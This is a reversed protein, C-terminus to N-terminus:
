SVAKEQALFECRHQGVEMMSTVRVSCMQCEWVTLTNNKLIKDLGRGWVWMYLGFAIAIVGLVIAVIALPIM